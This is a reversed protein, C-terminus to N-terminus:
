ELPPMALRTLFCFPSDEGSSEGEEIHFGTMSHPGILLFFAWSKEHASIRTSSFLISSKAEQIGNLREGLQAVVGNRQKKQRVRM